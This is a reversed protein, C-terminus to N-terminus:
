RCEKIHDVNIVNPILFDMVQKVCHDMNLYQFKGLRGMFVLNDNKKSLRAYKKQQIVSPPNLIPYAPVPTNQGAQVDAPYEYCLTTKPHKQFTMHKFETARTYAHDNPHNIVAAPLCREKDVTEFSFNIGRYPLHGYTYGFFEDIPGTYILKNFQVTQEIEAYPKGTIVQINEHDLMARFMNTYGKAPMGQYPDVFFRDDRDFRIPIRATIEPALQKADMGWQKQTYNKFFKEYITKGMRSIVMDEANKIEPLDIKERDLFCTMEEKTFPKEFLQEFTNINIPFSVYKGDVFAKVHHVYDLWDTFRSLYEWVKKHPTHFIHPGYLHILIGDDNVCDYCNGGIHDRKEVLLVTKNKERALISAATIGTIGAGVILVDVSKM